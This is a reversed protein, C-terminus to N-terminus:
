TNLYHLIAKRCIESGHRENLKFYISIKKRRGFRITKTKGKHLSIMMTLWVTQLINYSKVLNTESKWFM